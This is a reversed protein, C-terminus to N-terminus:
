QPLPKDENYYKRFITLYSGDAQMALIAKNINKILEAKNPLAVVGYGEGLQIEKSITKIGYTNNNMYTAAIASNLLIIDVKHNILATILDPVSPFPIIENNTGYISKRLLDYFTTEIVGIKLNQIPAGDNISGEKLAAFQVRSVVYPLSIAYHDLKSLDYPEALLLVDISGEDLTKLQTNFDVKRYTCHMQMHKCINNMMDISFGFFYPGNGSDSVEAFPPVGSIVGVTIDDPGSFACLSSLFLLIFVWRKM